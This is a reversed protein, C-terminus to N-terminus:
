GYLNSMDGEVARAGPKADKGYPFAILDEPTLGSTIQTYNGWLSKGTTVYRQELKGDAGLVLVYTRGNETRLFPNELYVGNGGESTSYQISVYSGAQLDASGDVYVRFPYSSANPNGSGNFSGERTPFDGISSVQATYTEGTNWDNITVETDPKLKDKELESVYGEVFFGGGGSVKVLPQRTSIAEEPTLLSVVEGDIEAYINGDSVEKQMIKYESEAMKIQFSLDRIKKEAEARMQAIQAATYHPTTDIEPPVFSDAAADMPDMVAPTFFRISDDATNVRLGQWTTKGAFQQDNETIRVVVCFSDVSVPQYLLSGDEQETYNGMTQLYEAMSKLEGLITHNLSQNQSLWLILPQYPTSGNYDTDECIEFGRSHITPGLDEDYYISDDPTQVHEAPVLGNIEHLKAEADQLQLKLKEVDLRKRELQLDSLTTDFQLLLDGKKVSDGEKVAIETVEQTDSLFVTQIKDTTVPGYSEQSDGWYETMGIFHFPFVYVPERRSSSLFFWGGLGAAAALLIGAAILIGKKHSVFWDKIM